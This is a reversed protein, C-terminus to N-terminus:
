LFAFPLFVDILVICNFRLIFFQIIFLYYALLHMRYFCAHFFTLYFKSRYPLLINGAGSDTFYAIFQTLCFVFILVSCLLAFAITALFLHYNRRGVCNNLWKCHHDFNSVCKNCTSCHKSNSSRYRLLFLIHLKRM